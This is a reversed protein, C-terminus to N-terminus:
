ASADCVRVLGTGFGIYFVDKFDLTLFTGTVWFMVTSMGYIVVLGGAGAAIQPWYAKINSVTLWPPM